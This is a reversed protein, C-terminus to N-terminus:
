DEGSVIGDGVDEPEKDLDMLGEKTGGEFFDDCTIGVQPQRNDAILTAQTLLMRANKRVIHLMTKHRTPDDFDIKLDITYTKRVDPDGTAITMMNIVRNLVVQAQQPDRKMLLTLRGVFIESATQISIPKYPDAM